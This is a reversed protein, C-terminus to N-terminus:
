RCDSDMVRRATAMEDARGKDDLIEREGSTNVRAIRQGSQLAAMQQRARQCNEARLAAQKDEEAKAKAQQEAELKKRRAELEPDVTPRSAASASGMAASAAPTAVPVATAARRVQVNPRQLIDKDQVERPPPIDSVHVQGKSDKWKWQAQVPSAALALLMLSCLLPTSRM